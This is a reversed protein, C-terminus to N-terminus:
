SVETTSGEEAAKKLGNALTERILNHRRLAADLNCKVCGGSSTYRTTTGCKNCPKYEFRVRGQAAAELQLQIKTKM